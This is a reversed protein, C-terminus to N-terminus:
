PSPSKLSRFDGDRKTLGQRDMVDLVPMVVRRSAGVAQRLDSVTAKGAKRLHGKVMRRIRNYGAPTLVLDREPCIVEGITELYRLAEESEKESCLVRRSPPDMPDQNLLDKLRDVEAQLHPPCQVSHGLLSVLGKEVTWVGKGGHHLFQDMAEPPIGKRRILNASNMGPLNPFEGHFSELKGLVAARVESELSQLWAFTGIKAIVESGEVAKGIVDQHFRTNPLIGALPVVGEEKVQSEVWVTVEAPAEARERLLQQRSSSGFSPRRGKVGALVIGGGMTWRQSSDRIVFRDGEFCALPEDLTLSALCSEGPMLTRGAELRLRALRATTGLHVWVRVASRLAKAEHAMRGGEVRHIVADLREFPELTSCTTLLSGRRVGGEGMEVGGLQVALRMGPQSSGITKGHNQLSRVKAM